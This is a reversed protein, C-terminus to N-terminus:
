SCNANVFFLGSEATVIQGWTMDVRRGSTIIYELAMHVCHIDWSFCLSENCIYCSMFQALYTLPNGHQVGWYSGCVGSTSFFAQCLNLPRFFKPIWHCSAHWYIRDM